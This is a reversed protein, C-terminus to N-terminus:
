RRQWARWQCGRLHCDAATCSHACTLPRPPAPSILSAAGSVTSDPDNHKYVRFSSEISPTDSVQQMERVTAAAASKVGPKEADCGRNSPPTPLCGLPIRAWQLLLARSFMVRTYQGRLNSPGSKESVASHGVTADSAAHDSLAALAMESALDRVQLLRSCVSFFVPLVTHM